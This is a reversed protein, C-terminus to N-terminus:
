RTWKSTHLGGSRGGILRRENPARGQGLRVALAFMSGDHVSWAEGVEPSDSSSRGLGLMCAEVHHKCRCTLPVSEASLECDCVPVTPPTGSDAPSLPLGPAEQAAPQRRSSEMALQQGYFRVARIGPQVDPGPSQSALEPRPSRGMRSARYSPIRRRSHLPWEDESEGSADDAMRANQSDIQDVSVRSARRFIGALGGIPGIFAPEGAPTRM